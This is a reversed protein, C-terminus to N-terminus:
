RTPEELEVWGNGVTPSDPVDFNDSLLTVPTNAAAIGSLSCLLIAGSLGRFLREIWVSMTYWAFDTAEM